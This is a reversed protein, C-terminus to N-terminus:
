VAGVWGYHQLSMDMFHTMLVGVKDNFSDKDYSQPLEKDLIMIIQNKVKTKPQEDKYWDVVFLENKSEKLKKYLSKASLVVKKEDARSLKKGSMLLDYIELEEDSLEGGFSGGLGGAREDEEKLENIRKM